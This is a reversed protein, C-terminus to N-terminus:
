QHDSISEVIQIMSSWLHDFMGMKSPTKFVKVMWKMVHSGDKNSGCRQNSKKFFATAAMNNDLGLSSDHQVECKKQSALKPHSLATMVGKRVPTTTSWSQWTPYSSDNFLETVTMIVLDAPMSISLNTQRHQCSDWDMRKSMKTCEIGWESDIYAMTYAWQGM